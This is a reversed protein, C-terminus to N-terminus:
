GPPKRLKEANERALKADMEAAKQKEIAQKSLTENIFASPEEINVMTAILDTKISTPIENGKTLRGAQDLVYLPVIQMFTPSESVYKGGIRTGDTGRIEIYKVAAKPETAPVNAPVSSNSTEKVPANSVCGAMLLAALVMAVVIASEILKM